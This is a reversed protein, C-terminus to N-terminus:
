RLLNELQKMIVMQRRQLDAVRQKQEDNLEYNQAKIDAVENALRRHENMLQGHIIRKDQMIKNKLGVM